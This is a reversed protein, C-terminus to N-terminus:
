LKYTTTKNNSSKRPKTATADRQVLDQVTQRIVEEPKPPENRENWCVCLEEVVQPHVGKGLLHGALQLLSKHRGGPERGRLMEVWHDAGYPSQSRMLKPAVGVREGVRNGDAGPLENPILAPSNGTVALIAVVAENGEIWRDGNWIKTWHMRTHHRGPLRWWSGYPRNPNVNPQKPFVEPAVALGHAQYDSVLWRGFDFVQQSALPKSFVTLLHLGGAGNSDLLLPEVGMGQLKRQWAVAAAFNSEPTAPDDEGHKDIDVVFWRCRNDRGIAHLGILQGVDQGRYHREMLEGTLAGDVRQDQHPATYNNSRGPGRKELPLYRGFVDTRNVLRQMTWEALDAANRGWAYHPADLMSRGPPKDVSDGFKAALTSGAADSSPSGDTSHNDDPRGQAESSQEPLMSM